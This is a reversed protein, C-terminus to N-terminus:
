PARLLLPQPPADAFTGLPSYRHLVNRSATQAVPLADRRTLLPGEQFLIPLPDSRHPARALVAPLEVVPASSRLTPAWASLGIVAAIALTAGVSAGSARMERGVTADDIHYIRHQLRALFDDSPAIEPLQQAVATARRVVRDYRECSECCELHSQFEREAAAPLLGDRFDSYGDLFSGCHM